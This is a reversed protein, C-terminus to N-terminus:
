NMCLCIKWLMYSLEPRKMESMNPINLIKSAPCGRISRKLQPLHVHILVTKKSGEQLTVFYSFVKYGQFHSASYSTTGKGAMVSEELGLFSVGFFKRM